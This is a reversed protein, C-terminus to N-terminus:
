LAGGYERCELTKVRHCNACRVVCKALEDRVHKFRYSARMFRSITQTKEGQVHDFDLAVAHADYGCDICGAALKWRELFDRLWRRLKYCRRSRAAGEARHIHRYARDRAKKATPDKYPM